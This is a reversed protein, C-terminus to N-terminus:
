VSMTENVTINEIDVTNSAKSQNYIADINKKYLILIITLNIKVYQKRHKYILLYDKGSTRTAAMLTEFTSKM